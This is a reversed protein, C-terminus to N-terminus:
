QIPTGSLEAVRYAGGNTATTSPTRARTPAANATGQIPPATTIPASASAAASAAAVAEAVTGNLNNASFSRALPSPATVAAIGMAYANGLALSSPGTITTTSSSPSTLGRAAAAAAALPPSRHQQPSSAPGSVVGTPGTSRSRHTRYQNPPSLPSHHHPTYDHQQTYAAGVPSSGGGGAAAPYPAYRRGGATATPSAARGASHIPSRGRGNRTTADQQQQEAAIVGASHARKGRGYGEVVPPLADRAVSRKKKGGNGKGASASGDLSASHSSPPAFRLNDLSAAPRSQEKLLVKVLVPVSPPVISPETRSPARSPVGKRRRVSAVKPSSPEVARASRQHAALTVAPAPRAPRGASHSPRPMEVLELSPLHAASPERLTHPSSSSSSLNRRRM